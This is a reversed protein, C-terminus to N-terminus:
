RAIDDVMKAVIQARQLPSRQDTHYLARLFARDWKTLGAPRENPALTFLRLISPADGLNAKPDVDILGAMAVYDTIQGLPIGQLRRSDVVIVTQTFALVAALVVRSAGPDCNVWAGPLAACAPAGGPPMPVGDRGLLDANHWVRVVEAKAPSLFQGIQTPNADSHFLLTPRRHLYRLTLDPDPTFVVYFNAAARACGAKRLPAGVSAALQALRVTVFEARDRPLGAVLFCLPESSWRPVSEASFRSSRTLTGVFAHVENELGKRRAEISVEPLRDTNLGDPNIAATTSTSQPEPQPPAARTDVPICALVFLAISTVLSRYM